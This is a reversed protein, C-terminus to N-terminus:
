GEGKRIDAVLEKGTYNTKYDKALEALEEEIEYLGFWATCNQLAFKYADETTIVSTFEEAITCVGKITM